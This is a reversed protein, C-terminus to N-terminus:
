QIQQQILSRQLEEKKAAEEDLRKQRQQQYVNAAFQPGVSGLAQFPNQGQGGAGLLGFGASLLNQRLIDQDTGGFPNQFNFLPM